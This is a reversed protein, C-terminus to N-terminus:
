LAGDEAEEVAVDCAAVAVAALWDCGVAVASPGCIPPTRHSVDSSQFYVLSACVCVTYM